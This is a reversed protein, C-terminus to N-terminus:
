LPDRRTLFSGILMLAGVTVAADAVNFAPWYHDKFYVLLFDDVYGLRVRDILNGVAGGLTLCLAYSFWRSAAPTKRYLYLLLGVALFSLILFFFVRVFQGQGAMMGFAGGRNHWHTLDFLGPIVPIRVGMSLRANVALKVAQDLLTVGGSVAALRTLKTRTEPTM